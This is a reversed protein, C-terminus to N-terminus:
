PVIRKLATYDSAYYHAITADLGSDFYSASALRPLAEIEGPLLDAAGDFADEKGSSTVNLAQRPLTQGTRAELMETAAGIEDFRYLKTWATGTLYLRQPRWHPDLVGPPMSMVQNAFARFTIGRDFDPESRGEAAQVPAVIQATHVINGTALRNMVFKELYASLLRDRPDRIIAFRLWNPSTLMEDVEELPYDSLQLGTAVSDTLLTHELLYDAHEVSSIRVMQRKLYTCANKGIPCYLVRAKRSVFMQNLPWTLGNKRSKPLARFEKSRLLIRHLEAIRPYDTVNTDSPARGLFFRFAQTTKESPVTM